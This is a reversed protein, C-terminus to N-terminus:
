VKLSRDNNGVELLIHEAKTCYYTSREQAWQCSKWLHAYEEGYKRLKISNIRLGELWLYVKFRSHEFKEGGFPILQRGVCGTCCLIGTNRWDICFILCKRHCKVDLFCGKFQYDVLLMGYSNKGWSHRSTVASSLVELFSLFIVFSHGLISILASHLPSCNGGLAQVM